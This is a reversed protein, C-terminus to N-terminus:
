EGVSRLVQARLAPSIYRGQDMMQDILPRLTSILGLRKAAGLVGLTGIIPIGHQSAVKRARREDLLLLRANQKIALTIAQAEGEDLRFAVLPDRKEIAIIELWPLSTLDPTSPEKGTQYEALVACPISITTYLQPLLHLHNIGALNILPSTNSVVPPWPM